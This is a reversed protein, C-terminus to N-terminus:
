VGPFARRCGQDVLAQFVHIDHSRCVQKVLNGDIRAGHALLTKMAPFDGRSLARRLLTQLIEHDATRAFTTVSSRKITQNRISLITDWEKFVESPQVEYMSEIAEPGRVERPPFILEMTRCESISLSSYLSLLFRVGCRSNNAAPFRFQPNPAEWEYTMM